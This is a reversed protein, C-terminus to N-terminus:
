RADVPELALQEPARKICNSGCELGIPPTTASRVMITAVTQVIKIQDAAPPCGINGFM